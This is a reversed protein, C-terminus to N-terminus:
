LRNNLWDILTQWVEERNPENHMEHRGGEYLKVTVDKVGAAKLEEAVKRVGAGRGGVPDNEGSYLLVPVDKEMSSLKGPYLNQLGRFMDRYAANTFTFGCLPDAVYRDVKDTNRSIWDKPTRVPSWDRNYGAFSMAELLRAPKQGAGFLCLVNAILLGPVLLSPSFHGTGSLIVGRLGKEHRLCYNRVVFSGMSHGLLFYPVGPYAKQTELRVSHLDEVLADFGGTGFWGLREAQGGHGLHNNGTVLIGAQNLRKATEDYCDIYEAMGHAIQVVAHVDGEPTWVTKSLWQGTVSRFMGVVAEGM